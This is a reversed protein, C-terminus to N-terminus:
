DPIHKALFSYCSTNTNTLQAPSWRAVTESLYLGELQDTCHLEVFLASPFRKKLELTLYGLGPEILVYIGLPDKLKLSDVFREAEKYPSYRSHLSIGHIRLGTM